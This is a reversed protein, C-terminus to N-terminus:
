AAETMWRSAAVEDYELGEARLSRIRSELDITRDCRNSLRESRTWNRRPQRAHRTRWDELRDRDLRRREDAAAEVVSTADARACRRAEAVAPVRAAALLQQAHATRPRRRARRRLRKKPIRIGRLSPSSATAKRTPSGDPALPADDDLLPPADHPSPAGGPSFVGISYCSGASDM